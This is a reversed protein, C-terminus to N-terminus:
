KSPFRMIKYNKVGRPLRSVLRGLFDTSLGLPFSKIYRQWNEEKALILLLNADSSQKVAKGVGRTGQNLKATHDDLNM